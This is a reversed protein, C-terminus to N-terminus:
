GARAESRAALQCSGRTVQKDSRKGPTFNVTSAVPRTTGYPYVTLYGSGAPQTVTVNDVAAVPDPRAATTPCDFNWGPTVARSSGPEM